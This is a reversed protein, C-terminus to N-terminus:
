NGLNHLFRKFLTLLHIKKFIMQGHMHYKLLRASLIVVIWKKLGKFSSLRWRNDNEVPNLQVVDDAVM